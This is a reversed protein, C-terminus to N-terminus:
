STRGDLHVTRSAIRWRGDVRRVTAEYHGTYLFETVSHPQGPQPERPTVYNVLYAYVTAHDGDGRILFNSIYHRPQKEARAPAIARAFAKIGEVGVHHGSIPSKLVVDDTFIDPLESEADGHDLAWAYRTFLDQIEIQDDVTLPM